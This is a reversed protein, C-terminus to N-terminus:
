GSQPYDSSQDAHYGFVDRIGPFCCDLPKKNSIAAQKTAITFCSHDLRRQSKPGRRM